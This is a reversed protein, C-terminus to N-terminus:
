FKPLVRTPLMCIAYKAHNGDSSVEFRMRLQTAIPHHKDAMWGTVGSVNESLLVTIGIETSLSCYLVPLADYCIPLDEDCIVQELIDFVTDDVVFRDMICQRFADNADCRMWGYSVTVYLVPCAILAVGDLRAPFVCAEEAIPFHAPAVNSMSAAISPDFRIGKKKFIYLIHELLVPRRTAIAVHALHVLANQASETNYAVCPMLELWGNLLRHPGTLTWKKETWPDDSREVAVKQRPKITDEEYEPSSPQGSSRPHGNKTSGTSDYFAGEDSGVVAGNTITVSSRCTRKNSADVDSVSYAEGNNSLRKPRMLHSLVPDITSVGDHDNEQKVRPGEEATPPPPPESETSEVGRVPAVSPAETRVNGVGYQAAHPSPAGSRDDVFGAAMTYSGVTSTTGSHFPTAASASMFSTAGPWPGFFTGRASGAGSSSPPPPPPPPSSYNHWDGQGWPLEKSPSGTSLSRDHQWWSLDPQGVGNNVLPPPFPSYMGPHPYGVTPSLPYGPLRDPTRKKDDVPGRYRHMRSKPYRRQGKPPHICELNKRRCRGCPVLKDCRVKSKRCHLCTEHVNRKVEVTGTEKANGADADTPPIVVTVSPAEEATPTVRPADGETVVAESSPRPPEQVVVSLRAEDATDLPPAPAPSTDVVDLTAAVSVATANAGEAATLLKPAEAAPM